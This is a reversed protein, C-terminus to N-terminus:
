QSSIVDYARIIMSIRIGVTNEDFRRAGRYRM